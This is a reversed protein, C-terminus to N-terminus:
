GKVSGAASGYVMYKQVIVVFLCVPILTISAAATLGGWNTSFQEMFLQLGVPVTMLEQNRLFISAILFENWAYLFSFISVAAIGPAAVPFIVKTFSQFKTCGDIWSAEELDVPISDFFGRYMWIAFPLNGATYLLIVSLHTDIIGINKFMIFLPILSLIIPFMQLVLLSQGFFATFRTRVRSIAYGATGAIMISLATAILAVFVSNRFKTLFSGNSNLNEYNELTFRTPFLQKSSLIEANTKFSNLVMTIIPMNVLLVIVLMVAFIIWNRPRRYKSM